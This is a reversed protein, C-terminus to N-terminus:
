QKPRNLALVVSHSLIETEFNMGYIHLALSFHIAIMEIYQLNRGQDRFRYAAFKVSKGSISQGGKEEITRWNEEGVCRINEFWRQYERTEQWKRPGLLVKDRRRRDIKRADLCGANQM